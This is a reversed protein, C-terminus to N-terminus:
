LLKCDFGSPLEDWSWTPPILPGRFKWTHSCLNQIQGSLFCTLSLILLTNNHTKKNTEKLYDTNGKEIAEPIKWISWSPFICGIFSDVMYVCLLICMSSSLGNTYNVTRKYHSYEALSDKMKSTSDESFLQVSTLVECALEYSEKLFCFEKCLM